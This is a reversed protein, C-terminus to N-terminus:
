YVVKSLYLGDPSFTMGAQTRDQAEIVDMLGSVSRKGLGIEVLTGMINRVMHHLFHNAGIELRWLNEAEEVWRLHHLDCLSVRSQCEADQFGKFDHEGLPFTEVATQIAAMDLPVPMHGAHGVLDTRLYRANWLRYVYHRATASFRAHFDETVKAADIVRIDDPLFRNMGGIYKILDLDKHVDVHAIQGWAHVGRDTRGAGQIEVEHQVIQELAKALEGQVSPLDEQIQWGYYAGGDYQITLKLRPM